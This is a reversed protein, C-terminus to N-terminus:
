RVILGRITVPPPCKTCSELGSLHYTKEKMLASIELRQSISPYLSALSPFPSTRDYGCMLGVGSHSPCLEDLCSVRRDVELSFIGLSRGLDSDLESKLRQRQRPSSLRTLRGGSALGIHHPVYSEGLEIDTLRAQDAPHPSRHAFHTYFANSAAQVRLVLVVKTRSSATALRGNSSLEGRM